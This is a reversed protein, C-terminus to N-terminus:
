VRIRLLPWFGTYSHLYKIPIYILCTWFDISCPGFLAKQWIYWRECVKRQCVGINLAFNPSGFAPFPGIGGGGKVYGQLKAPWGKRWIKKFGILCKKLIHLEWFNLFKKCAYHLVSGNTYPLSMCYLTKIVLLYFLLNLMFHANLAPVEPHIHLYLSHRWATQLSKRVSKM